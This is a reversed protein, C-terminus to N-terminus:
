QPMLRQLGRAFEDLKARASEPSFATKPFRETFPGHAGVTFDVRIVTQVTRDAALASEETVRTIKMTLDDM